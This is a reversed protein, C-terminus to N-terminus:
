ITAKICGRCNQPYINGGRMNVERDWSMALHILATNSTFLRLGPLTSGQMKEIRVVRRGETDNPQSMEETERAVEVM